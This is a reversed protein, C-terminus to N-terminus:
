HANKNIDSCREHQNRWSTMWLRMESTIEVAEVYTKAGCCCSADIRKMRYDTERSLDGVRIVTPSGKENSESKDNAWYKVMEEWAPYADRDQRSM